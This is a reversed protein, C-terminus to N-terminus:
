ALLALAVARERRRKAGRPLGSHEPVRMLDPSALYARILRLQDTRSGGARALLRQLDTLGSRDSGRLPRRLGVHEVSDLVVTPTGRTRVRLLRDLSGSHSRLCCGAEELRRLLAGASRLVAWRQKHEATWRPGRCREALWDALPVTDPESAILLFSEAQGPRPQRQGVALLRPAPIGYRQLRFLLDAQHLEPTTWRKLRLRDWLWQWSRRVRRFVLLARQAGPVEVESRAVEGDAGAPFRLWDPVQGGLAAYFERTVCLAEGDLWVLNQDPPPPLTDRQERIHRRRLLRQRTVAVRQILSRVSRGAFVRPNSRRLYSRLLRLRM